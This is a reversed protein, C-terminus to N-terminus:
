TTADSADSNLLVGHLENTALEQRESTRCDCRGGDRSNRDRLDIWSPWHAQDDGGGRGTWSIYGTAEDRLLQGLMEFLLEVDFVDRACAAIDAYASCCLRPRVSVGLGNNGEVM